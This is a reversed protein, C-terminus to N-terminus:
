ASQTANSSEEATDMLRYGIGRVTEILGRTRSDGLKRRLYGIYVEIVNSDIDLESDWVHEAITNRSVVQGKRRMMFEALSFERATLTVEEEGSWCRRAAPDLRISGATLVPERDSPARRLLARLRALLVVFSFPKSLFDDAGLDLADAEDYEGDKATLMLIPVTSGGARLRRCVEYGSLGPLMIDLIIVDFDNEGAMWLGDVGNMAAETVFGEATLGRQLADVMAAEDEVLLVKM